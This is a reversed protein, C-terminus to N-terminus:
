PERARLLDWALGLGGALYSVGGALAMIAGGVQQDVLTGHGYLLRPALTILVGLVTMHMATLLLATIGEMANARRVPPQGGLAASWLAVACGLFVAQELVWVAPLHRSAHHLAPAHWAWVAVLEVFSIPLAGWRPRFPLGLALLPAALGVLLMHAAMHASFPAIGLRPVVVWSGLAVLGGAVAFATV